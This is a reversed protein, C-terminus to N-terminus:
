LIMIPLQWKPKEEQKTDNMLISMNSSPTRDPLGSGWNLTLDEICDRCVSVASKCKMGWCPSGGLCIMDNETKLM